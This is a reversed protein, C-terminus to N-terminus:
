GFNELIYPFLFLIAAFIVAFLVIILIINPGKKKEEKKVVTTAQTNDMFQQANQEVTPISRMQEQVIQNQQVPDVPATNTTYLNQGNNQNLANNFQPMGQNNPNIDNNYSPVPNINNNVNNQNENM